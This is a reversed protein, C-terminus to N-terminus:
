PIGQGIQAVLGGDCVSSGHPWENQSAHMHLHRACLTLDTFLFPVSHGSHRAVIVFRLQSGTHESSVDCARSGGGAGAGFTEGADRARAECKFTGTWVGGCVQRASASSCEDRFSSCTLASWRMRRSSLSSFCARAGDGNHGRVM